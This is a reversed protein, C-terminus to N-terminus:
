ENKLHLYALPELDPMNRQLNRFQKRLTDWAATGIEPHIHAYGCDGKCGRNSSYLSCCLRRVSGGARTNGEDDGHDSSDKTVRKRQKRERRAGGKKKDSADGADSSASPQSSGPPPHTSITSGPPLIVGHPNANNATTADASPKPLFRTHAHGHHHLSLPSSFSKGCIPCPFLKVSPISSPDAKVISVAHPTEDSTVDRAVKSKGKPRIPAAPPDNLVIGTGDATATRPSPLPVPKHAADIHRYLYIPSSFSQECSPCRLEEVADGKKKNNGKQRANRDRSPPPLSDEDDEDEVVLTSVKRVQEAEKRAEPRRSITPPDTATNRGGRSSGEDRRRSQKEPQQQQVQQRTPQKIM